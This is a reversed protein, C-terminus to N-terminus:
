RYYEMWSFFTPVGDGVVRDFMALWATSGGRGIWEWIRLEVVVVLVVSMCSCGGVEGMMDRGSSVRYAGEGREEEILSVIGGAGGVDVVVVDFGAFVGGVRTDLVDLCGHGAPGELEEVELAGGEDEVDAAAAAEGAFDEGGDVGFFAARM